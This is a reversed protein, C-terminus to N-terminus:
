SSDGAGAGAILPPPQLLSIGVSSVPTVDDISGSTVNASADKSSSHPQGPNYNALVTKLTPPHKVAWLKVIIRIEASPPEILYPLPSVPQPSSNCQKRQDLQAPIFM